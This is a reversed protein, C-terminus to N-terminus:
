RLRGPCGGAVVQFMQDWEGPRCAGRCRRMLEDSREEDDHLRVPVGRWRLDYGEGWNVSDIAGVVEWEAAAEFHRAIDTVRDDTRLYVWRIM